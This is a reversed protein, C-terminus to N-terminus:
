LMKSSLSTYFREYNNKVVEVANNLPMVNSYVLSGQELLQDTIKIIEEFNQHRYFDLSYEDPYNVSECFNQNKQNYSLSLFPIGLLYAMIIGHLRMSIVFGCRSIENIIKFIDGDFKVIKVRDPFKSHNKLEENLSVDPYLPGVYLIFLVVNMGRELTHDILKLYKDFHQNQEYMKEEGVKRIFMMGVLNSERKLSKAYNIEDPCLENLYLTSDISSFVNSNKSIKKATETSYNDRFIHYDVENLFQSCMAETEPNKIPDISIGIGASFLKGAKINKLKHIIDLKWKINNLSHLVSGGGILLISFKRLLLFDKIKIITRKEKFSHLSKVVLDSSGRYKAINGHQYYTIEKFGKAKLFLRNVYAMAEDGFDGQGIWAINLIKNKTFKNM